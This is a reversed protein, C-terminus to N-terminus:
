FNAQFYIKVNGCDAFYASHIRSKDFADADVTKLEVSAAGTNITKATVGVKNYEM